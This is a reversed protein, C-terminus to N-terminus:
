QPLNAREHEETGQLIAGAIEEDTAYPNDPATKMVAIAQRVWDSAQAAISAFKGRNSIAELGVAFSNKGSGAPIALLSMKRAILRKVNPGIKQQAEDLM